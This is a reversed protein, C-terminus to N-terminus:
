VKKNLLLGKATASDNSYKTTLGAQNVAPTEHKQELFDKVVETMGPQEVSMVVALKVRKEEVVPESNQEPKEEPSQQQPPGDYFLGSGQSGGPDNEARKSTSILSLAPPRNVKHIM